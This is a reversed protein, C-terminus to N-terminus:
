VFPELTLVFIIPSLPCGQRTRIHIPFANSLHGKVRVKAQPNSYLSLISTQMFTGLGISSVVAAMYDWVVRDFAKEADTSLFFGETSSSTLWHHINLVKITNYCAERGLVFGAQDQSVLNPLFPLLRNALM